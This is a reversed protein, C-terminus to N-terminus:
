VGEIITTIRKLDTNYTIAKSKEKVGYLGSYYGDSHIPALLRNNEDYAKIKFYNNFEPSINWHQMMPLDTNHYVQDEIEWHLKNKM